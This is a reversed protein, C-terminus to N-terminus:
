KLYQIHTHKYLHKQKGKPTICKKDNQIKIITSINSHFKKSSKIM